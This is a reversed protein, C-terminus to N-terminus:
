GDRYGGRGDGINRERLLVLVSYCASKVPREMDPRHVVGRGAVVAVPKRRFDDAVSDPEVV